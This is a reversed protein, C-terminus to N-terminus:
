HAAAAAAVPTRPAFRILSPTVLISGVSANPFRAAEVNRVLLYDVGGFRQFSKTPLVVESWAWIGHQPVGRNDLLPQSRVLAYFRNDNLTMINLQAVILRLSEPPRFALYADTVPVGPPSTAQMLAEAVNFIYGRNHLRKAAAAIDHSSLASVKRQKPPAAKKAKKNSSPKRDARRQGAIKKAARVLPKKSTVARTM